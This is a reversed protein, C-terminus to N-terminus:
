EKVSTWTRCTLASGLGLWNERVVEGEWYEVGVEEGEMGVRLPQEETM